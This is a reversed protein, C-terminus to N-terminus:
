MDKMVKSIQKRIEKSIRPYMRDELPKGKETLCHGCVRRNQDETSLHATHEGYCEQWQGNKQCAKCKEHPIIRFYITYSVQTQETKGKAECTKYDLPIKAKKVNHATYRSTPLTTDKEWLFMVTDGIEIPRSGKSIRSSHATFRPGRRGLICFRYEDTVPDPGEQWVVVCKQRLRM